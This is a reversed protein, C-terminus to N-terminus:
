QKSIQQTFVKDDQTVSIIYSGQPVDKIDIHRNYYGTNNDNKERFVVKGHADTVSVFLPGPTTTFSLSFQGNSPNPFIRADTLELTQFEHISSLHDGKDRKPEVVVPAEPEGCDTRARFEQGPLQAWDKLTVKVNHYQDDRTYRVEVEDGARYHSLAFYLSSFDTVVFEDINKIIDGEILGAEKAGGKEILKNIRAGFVDESSGVYVGLAACNTKQEGSRRYTHVRPSDDTYVTVIKKSETLGTGEDVNKIVIINRTEDLTVNENLKGEVIVNDGASRYLFLREGDTTEIEGEVKMTKIVEPDIAMKELIAEPEEGEAIYTETITQGKDDVKKTTITIRQTTKEVTTASQAVASLSFLACFVILLSAHKM